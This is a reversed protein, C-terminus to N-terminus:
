WSISLPFPFYTLYSLPLKDACSAPNPYLLKYTAVNSLLNNTVIQFSYHAFLTCYRTIPYKASPEHYGGFPLHMRHKTSRLKLYRIVSRLMVEKGPADHAAVVPCNIVALHHYSRCYWLIGKCLWQRWPGKWRAMSRFVFCPCYRAIELRIFVFRVFM